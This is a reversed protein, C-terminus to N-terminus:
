YLLGGLFTGGLTRPSSIMSPASYEDNAYTSTPDIGPCSVYQGTLMGRGLPSYAVVAVGLERAVSIVDETDLTFPSYEVEIAAIPHIAHARRLSTASPESLGIQKIKGARPHHKRNIQQPM